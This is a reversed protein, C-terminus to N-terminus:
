TTTKPPSYAAIIGDLTEKEAVSLLDPAGEAMSRIRCLLALEDERMYMRDITFGEVMYVGGGYRGCQTYIPATLSIAEIDRQITRLSVGFTQALNLMTEYRRRCLLRVIEARREATGM